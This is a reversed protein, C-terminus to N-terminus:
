KQLVSNWNNHYIRSPDFREPRPKQESPHGLAVLAFAQIHGPLNFMEKIAAMRQERPYLGIWCTGLGLAHAALLINQTAAGCDAIWYGKDHQRNEDGCVLIAAPASSLMGANPHMKIIAELLSRDDILIFHWPQKNVASPAYMGAKIIELVVSNEIKKDSYKRISRRNLIFDIPNM